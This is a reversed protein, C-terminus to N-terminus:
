DQPPNSSVLTKIKVAHIKDKLGELAAHVRQHQEMLTRGRFAPSVVIIEFHDGGGTMDQVTVESDPIVKRVTEQIEQALTM